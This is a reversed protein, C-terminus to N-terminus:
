EPPWYTGWRRVVITRGGALKNDVEEITKYPGSFRNGGPTFDAVILYQGDKLIIGSGAHNDTWVNLGWVVHRMFTQYGSKRLMDVAFFAADICHGEKTKFTM